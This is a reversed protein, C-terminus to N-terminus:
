ILYQIFFGPVDHEYNFLNGRGFLIDIVILAIPEPLNPFQEPVVRAPLLGKM